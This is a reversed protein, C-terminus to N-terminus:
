FFLTFPSFDIDYGDDQQTSFNHMTLFTLITAVSM